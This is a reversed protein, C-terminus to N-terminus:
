TFPIEAVLSPAPAKNKRAEELINKLQNGITNWNLRKKYEARSTCALAHYEDRNSLTKLIHDAYDDASADLPFRYGNQGNRVVNSIGGVDTTLSPLGYASAEAFVLGFCEAVTPLILFHSDAFLRQLKDRDAANSKSLFGHTSVFEPLRDHPEPGVIHLQCKLGHENLKRAVELALPGGKRKWDVGIFLLSCRDKPRLAIATEVFTQSPPSELNAGLPLVRLKEPSVDYHHLAHNAAWQSSFIATHCNTLALQDLDHGSRLTEKSLNGFEPYFGVLGDFTSDTWLVVPQRSDLYAVPRTGPCLVIDPNIRDIQEAAQEAFRRAVDPQVDTLYRKRLTYYATKKGLHWFKNHIALPGVYEIHVGQDRLARSIFLGTGSWQHVDTADYETVYALKM